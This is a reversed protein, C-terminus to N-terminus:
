RAATELCIMRNLDRLILRDAAVAMPGWADPGELVKARALQVYGAPSAEALTLEGEDDMVYILDNIITYPGLGFKHTSGSTWCIKGDLDLCALQGDPRVGYLHGEYLIPTHQPSGFTTAPLKFEAAPKIRGNEQTLKLMMAGANYGGSLFLRGEGVPVPTPVNAIRIQWDPYEWLIAGDEASVGVVGGSACWVYMRKGAFDVPVVSSHTMAWHNPNPTQWIPRGTKLDVAMMLCKGGVGLVVNGGDILPCQGAYWDPVTAGYDKVLDIFWNLAGGAADLCAVRCKPGLSVVYEDTVAPVTRSMGHQRKVKSPYFYRWIDKGDALSLCRIADGKKQEDYDVVYVRGNRVAAGAYGEGLNVSWLVPPGSERWQRALTVDVKAIADLNSGRFQPWLGPLNAPKGDFTTLEGKASIDGGEDSSEGVANAPIPVRLRMHTSADAGLWLLALCVVGAVALGMPIIDALASKKMTLERNSFERLTHMACWKV